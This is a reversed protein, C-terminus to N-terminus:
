RSIMVRRQRAQRCIHGTRSVWAAGRASGGSERGQRDHGISAGGTRMLGPLSPRECAPGMVM